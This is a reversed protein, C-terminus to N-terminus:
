YLLRHRYLKPAHSAISALLFASLITPTQPFLGHYAAGLLLLKVLTSAGSLERYIQRHRMWEALLLVIGSIITLYIYLQPPTKGIDLLYTALFVAAGVQHVARLIISLKLIWFPRKGIRGLKASSEQFQQKQGTM